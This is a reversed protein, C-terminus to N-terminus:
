PGAGPLELSQLVTGSLGVAVFRRDHYV